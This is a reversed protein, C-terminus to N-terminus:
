VVSGIVTLGEGAAIVPGEAVQGPPVIVIESAEPPPVQDHLLGDIAVTLKAVPINVPPDGPTAIIL